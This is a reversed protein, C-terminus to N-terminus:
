RPGSRFLDLDIADAIAQHGAAERAMAEATRSEPVGANVLVAATVAGVV